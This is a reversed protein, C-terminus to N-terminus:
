AESSQGLPLTLQLSEPAGCRGWALVGPHQIQGMCPSQPVADAGHLPEPTRCRDWALVGPHQVQGM